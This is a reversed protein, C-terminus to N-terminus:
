KEDAKRSQRALRCRGWDAAERIAGTSALLLVSPETACLQAQYMLLPRPFYAKLLHKSLALKHRPSEKARLLM